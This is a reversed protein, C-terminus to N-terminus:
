LMVCFHILLLNNMDVLFCFLYLALPKQLAIIDLYHFICAIKSSSM